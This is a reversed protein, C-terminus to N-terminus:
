AALAAPLPTTRPQGKIDGSTARTAYHTPAGSANLSWEMIASARRLDATISFAEQAGGHM